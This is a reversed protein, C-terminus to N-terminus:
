GTEGTGRGGDRESESEQYLKERGERARKRRVRLRVRECVRASKKEEEEEKKRKRNERGREKRKKRNARGREKVCAHALVREKSPVQWCVCARVCVCLRKQPPM